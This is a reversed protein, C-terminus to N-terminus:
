LLNRNKVYKKFEKTVEKGDVIEKFRCLRLTLQPGLQVFKTKTKSQKISSLGIKFRYFRFYIFDKHVSLNAVQNADLDLPFIEMFIEAVKIGLDTTFNNLVLQSRKYSSLDDKNSISSFSKYNIIKLVIQKDASDILIYQPGINEHIRISIENIAPKVFEDTTFQINPLMRAIDFLLENSKATLNSQKYIKIIEVTM